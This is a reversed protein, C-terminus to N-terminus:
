VEYLTSPAVLMFLLHGVRPTGWYIAQLCMGSFCAQSPAAVAM